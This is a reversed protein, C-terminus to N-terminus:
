DHVGAGLNRWLGHTVWISTPASSALRQGFAFFTTRSGSIATIQCEDNGKLFPAPLLRWYAGGDDTRWLQANWKGFSTLSTSLTVSCALILGPTELSVAYSYSTAQVPPTVIHWGAPAAPAKNQTLSPNSLYFLAAGSLAQLAVYVLGGLVGLTIWL